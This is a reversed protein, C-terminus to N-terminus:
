TVEKMIRHEILIGTGHNIFINNEKPAFIVIQITSKGFWNIEQAISQISYFFSWVSFIKILKKM